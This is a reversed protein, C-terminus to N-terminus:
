SVEKLNYFPPMMYEDVPNEIFSIHFNPSASRGKLLFLITGSGTMCPPLMMSLEPVPDKYLSICKSTYIHCKYMMSPFPNKPLINNREM